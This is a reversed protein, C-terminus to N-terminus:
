GSSGESGSQSKQSQNQSGSANQEARGRLRELNALTRHRAPHEPGLRRTQIELALHLQRLATQHDGQAEAVLALDHAVAAFTPHQDGVTTALMDRARTLAGEAEAPRGADLHVAGVSAYLVAMRPHEAGVLDRRLVIAEELARLAEAHQGRRKHAEALNTLITALRAASREHERSVVVARNFADVAGDLDDRGVLLAGHVSHFEARVGPDQTRLVDAGTFALWVDTEPDDPARQAFLFMRLLGARAAVHHQSTARALVAAEIAIREAKFVDGDRAAVSARRYLAQARLSPLSWRRAMDEAERGRREAGGYDGSTEDQEAAVLATRIKASAVARAPDILEPEPDPRRRTCGAPDPLGDRWRRPAADTLVIRRTQELGRELCDIARRSTPSIIPRETCSDWWLGAWQTTYRDRSRGDEATVTPWRDRVEALAQEGRECRGPTTTLWVAGGAAVLSSALWWGRHRRRVRQLARVLAELDPWRQESQALGRELVTVVRKPVRGPTSVRRGHIERVGLVQLAMLCLSFQDGRVDPSRGQRQEPAMYALTGGGSARQSQERPLALGLDVIRVHGGDDVLVNSPKIDCHVLGARHIAALGHGAEVLRALIEPWRRGACWRDLHQGDISEMAIFVWNDQRGADHVTAVHAHHIRALARAEHIDHAGTQAAISAPVLKLAITRGLVPDFASWVRGMSGRGLPEGIRYRGLTQGPHPGDRAGPEAPETYHELLVAACRSCTQLHAGLGADGSPPVGGDLVRALAESPPCRQDDGM